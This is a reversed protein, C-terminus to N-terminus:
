SLLLVIYCVLQTVIDVYGNLIKQEAEDYSTNEFAVITPDEIVYEWHTPTGRGEVLEISFKTNIPPTLVPTPTPTVDPIPSTEIISEVEGASFQLIRLADNANVVNAGTGSNKTNGAIKQIGVM